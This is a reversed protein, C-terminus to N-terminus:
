RLELTRLRAIAAAVEYRRPRLLDGPPASWPSLADVGEADLRADLAALIQSIDRRGDAIGAAIVRIAHGLSAAHAADLVQSLASLDLAADGLELHRADRARIRSREGAPYLGRPVRTRLAPLPGPPQPAPGALARARATVDRPRYAEMAIVTDAVALYDGVGGVVMVTSLGWGEYVQRVREVFPTIPECERPILRRMREDRVLLNTASSDEDILLLGAGAEAAEIIAAAQSTSGSADDTSFSATSRGGPLDRLFASIDVGRVSRGDEARISVADPRTVVRERGDGPRHDLHGRQLAGLLTSKGHFGGGVILTVGAPIGMGCVPGEPGELCVRLSAPSVFPLAGALPDQSVGTARPLM